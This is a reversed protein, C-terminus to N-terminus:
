GYQLQGLKTSVDNKTNLSGCMDLTLGGYGTSNLYCSTSSTRAPRVGASSERSHLTLACDMVWQTPWAAVSMALGSGPL